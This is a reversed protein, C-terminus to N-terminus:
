KAGVQELKELMRKIFSNIESETVYPGMDTKKKLNKYRKLFRLLENTKIKNHETKRIETFYDFRKKTFIELFNKMEDLCGTFVPHSKDIYDFFNQLKEYDSKLNLIFNVNYEKIYKENFITNFYIRPIFCIADYFCTEIYNSSLRKM